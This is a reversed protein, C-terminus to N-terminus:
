AAAFAEAGAQAVQPDTDEFHVQLVDADKVATVDVHKLLEVPDMGGPVSSSASEAVKLSDVIQQENEINLPTPTIAGVTATGLPSKVLMETTATYVPTQTMTWVVAIVVAVAICAAILRWRRVIVRGYDRLDLFTGEQQVPAWGPQQPQQMM